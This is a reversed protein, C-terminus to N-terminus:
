KNRWCWRAYEVGSRAIWEVDTENNSNMALRTEVKMLCPLLRVGAGVPFFDGVMVFIIAIGDPKQCLTIKMTRLEDALGTYSRVTIPPTATGSNPLTGPPVGPQLNGPPQGPAGPMQNLRRTHVPVAARHGVGLAEQAQSSFQDLKGLVLQIRVVRPTNTNPGNM